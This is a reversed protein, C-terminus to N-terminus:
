QVPTTHLTYGCLVPTMEMAYGCLVTTMDLTYGCLVPTMEMAYGCLVPTMELAYGYLVPTMDLAYGCLVPTMELTYGCLVPTMDLAYGCLVPTLAVPSYLPTSEINRSTGSAKVVAAGSATMVPLYGCLEAAMILQAVATSSKENAAPEDMFTEAHNVHLVSVGTIGTPHPSSALRRKKLVGHPATPSPSSTRRSSAKHQKKHRQRSRIPCREDDSSGESDADCFLRRSPDRRRGTHNTNLTPMTVANKKYAPEPTLFTGAHEKAQSLCRDSGTKEENQEREEGHFSHSQKTLGEASMATDEAWQASYVTQQGKVRM